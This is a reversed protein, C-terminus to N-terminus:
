VQTSDVSWLCLGDLFHLTVRGFSAAVDDDTAAEGAYQCQTLDLDKTLSFKVYFFIVNEFSLCM